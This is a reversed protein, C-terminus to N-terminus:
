EVRGDAGEEPTGGYREVLCAELFYHHEESAASLLTADERVCAEQLRRGCGLPRPSGEVNSAARRVEEHIQRRGLAIPPWFESPADPEREAARADAAAVAGLFIAAVPWLLIPLWLGAPADSEKEAAGM